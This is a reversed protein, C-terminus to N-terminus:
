TRVTKTLIKKRIGCGFREVQLSKESHEQNLIIQQGIAWNGCDPYLAIAGFRYPLPTRVDRWRAIASDYDLTM